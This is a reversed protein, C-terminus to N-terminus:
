HLRRACVNDRPETGRDRRPGVFDAVFHAVCEKRVLGGRFGCEGGRARPMPQAVQVCEGALAQLGGTDGADGAAAEIGEGIRAQMRIAAITRAATPHRTQQPNLAKARHFSLVMCTSAAPGSSRSAEQLTMSAHRLASSVWPSRCHSACYGLRDNKPSAIMAPLRKTKDSAPVM